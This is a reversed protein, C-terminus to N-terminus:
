RTFALGSIRQWAPTLSAYKEVDVMWRFNGDDLYINPKEGGDAGRIMFSLSQCKSCDIGGLDTSWGSYTFIEGEGIKNIKGISGGYSLRYAWSHPPTGYKGNIAM